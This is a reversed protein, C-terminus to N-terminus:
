RIRRRWHIQKSQQQNHDVFKSKESRKSRLSQNIQAFGTCYTVLFIIKSIHNCFYYSSIFCVEIKQKAEKERKYKAIKYSRSNEPNMRIKNESESIDDDKHLINLQKCLDLFENFYNRSVILHSKRTLLNMVQGNLKAIYYKISLYKLSETQLDDYEENKSFLSESEVLGICKEFNEILSQIVIDDKETLGSLINNAQVEASAFLSTITSFSSMVFLLNM